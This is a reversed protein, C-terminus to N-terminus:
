KIKESFKGEQSSSILEYAKLTSYSSSILIIIGLAVFTAIKLFPQLIGGLFVVFMRVDRSAFQKIKGFLAPHVKMDLEGKAHIYSVLFSSTLSLFLLLLSAFLGLQFEKSVFYTMGFVVFSDAVRDLVSDFFAGKPSATGKMRAVEGDVGDLVSSIQAFIGGLVPLGSLFFLGSLVSLSFVVVSIQNPTINLNKSVVFASIKTSIRRNLFRSIPGDTKKVFKRWDTDM